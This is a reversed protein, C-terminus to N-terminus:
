LLHPELLLYLTVADTVPAGYNCAIITEATNPVLIYFGTLLMGVGIPNINGNNSSNIDSGTVPYLTADSPLTCYINLLDCQVGAGLVQIFLTKAM